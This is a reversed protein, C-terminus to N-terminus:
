RMEKITSYTETIKNIMYMKGIRKSLEKEAYVWDKEMLVMIVQEAIDPLLKSINSVHREDAKSFPADMVLPYPETDFVYEDTDRNTKDNLKERGLDVLGAIFAFNKVTELGSSEDTKVDSYQVKYSKDIMISRRGHYMKSFILNVREELKDRIEQEKTIYSNSVWNYLYEAYARCKNIFENKENLGALSDFLKKANNINNIINGKEVLLQDKESAKNRLMKITVQYEKELSASDIRNLLKASITSTEDKIKSIDKKLYRLSKYDNKLNEYYSDSFYEFSNLDSKFNKVLTGISEPPVLRRERMLHEEGSSNKCIPNGCICVGRKLIEDIAEANIGQISEDVYDTKELIEHAAQFLPLGFFTFARDNFKGTLKVIDAKYQNELNNRRILLKEKQKQLESTEENEILKQGLKGKKEEYHNITENITEIAEELYDLRKENNDILESAKKAKENGELNISKVFDNEVRKLHERATELVDLGMLGKISSAVDQKSSINNIREGDFFFYSSLGEPLIKDISNSIEYGEINRTQGDLNDKYTMNKYTSTGRVEGKGTCQYCQIREIVYDVDNHKLHLIVKVEDVGNIEMSNKVEDNLINKTKFNIQEYLVWNFAQVM